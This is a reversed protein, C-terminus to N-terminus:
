EYTNLVEKLYDLKYNTFFMESKEFWREIENWLKLMQVDNMLDVNYFVSDTQSYDVKSKSIKGDEDLILPSFLFNPLATEGVELISDCLMRLPWLGSWDNGMVQVSLSNNRKDNQVLFLAKCFQRFPVNVDLYTDNEIDFMASFEGHHPCINTVRFGRSSIQDIRTHNCSKEILNCVPCATRVHLRGKEMDMIKGLLKYNQVGQVISKRMDLDAQIMEYTYIQSKIQTLEEIREILRQFLVQNEYLVKNTNISDKYFYLEGKYEIVNAIERDSINDLLEIRVRVEKGYLKQFQQALKFGTMFNVMTGIHPKGSLRTTLVVIFKEKGKSKHKFVDSINNIYHSIGSYYIM